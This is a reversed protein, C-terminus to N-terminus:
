DDPRLIEGSSVGPEPLDGHVRIVSELLGCGTAVFKAIAQRGVPTDLGLVGTRHWYNMLQQWWWTDEGVVGARTHKDDLETGFKKVQYSREQLLWSFAAAAPDPRRVGQEPADHGSASRVLMTLPPLYEAIDDDTWGTDVLRTRAKEDDTLLDDATLVAGALDIVPVDLGIALDVEMRAGKSLAWGPTAVLHTAFREILKHWFDNYEDQSWAQVALRAPNLALQTPFRARM